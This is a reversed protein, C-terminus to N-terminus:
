IHMIEELTQELAKILKPINAPKPNAEISACIANLQSFGLFGTEGKLKHALSRLEKPDFHTPQMEQLLSIREQIKIKFHALHKYYTEPNPGFYKEIHAPDIINYIKEYINANTTDKAAKPTVPKFHHPLHKIFVTLIDQATFPKSIFDDMGADICLDRKEKIVYATLAVIPIKSNLKQRILRTATIGDANAMNVDMLVIDYSRQFVARFAEMGDPVVDTKAGIGALVEETIERILENDEALLVHPPTALQAQNSDNLGQKNNNEPESAKASILTFHFTAGKKENNEFWIEGQWLSVLKKCIALGLGVGPQERAHTENLQQFSEFLSHKQNEPIGPGTDSVTFQIKIKDPNDSDLSHVTFSVQGEPTYKIANSLLNMIVQKLRHPDGTLWRPVEKDINTKFHLSKVNAEWLMLEHIEHIVAHLDFTEKQLNINGSEIKSYDLIDDILYLVMNTATLSKQIYQAHAPPPDKSKSLNLMGFIISLPTRIEHSMKALFMSKARNAADAKEKAIKLNGETKKLKKVSTNLLFVAILLLVLVFLIGGIFYNKYDSWNVRQLSAKNIEEKKEEPMQSLSKDLISALEPWDKRVAMYIAPSFNTIKQKLELDNLVKRKHILYKCVRSVGAHYHVENIAAKRLGDEDTPVTVLEIEPYNHKIFKYTKSENECSISVGKKLIHDNPMGSSKLGFLGSTEEVLSQTYILYEQRERTKHLSPSM